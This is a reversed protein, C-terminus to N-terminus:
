YSDSSLTGASLQPRQGKVVSMDISFYKLNASASSKGESLIGTITTTSTLVDHDITAFVFGAIPSHSPFGVDRLAVELRDITSSKYKSTISSVEGESIITNLRVELATAVKSWEAPNATKSATKVKIMSDTPAAVSSSWGGSLLALGELAELQPRNDRRKRAISEGTGLCWRFFAAPNLGVFAVCKPYNIRDDPGLAKRNTSEALITM